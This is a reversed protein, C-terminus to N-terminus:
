DKALKYLMIYQKYAKEVTANEQRVKLMKYEETKHALIEKRLTLNTEYLVNIRKMLKEHIEDSTLENSYFDKFDVIGM